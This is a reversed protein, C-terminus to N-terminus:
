PQKGTCGRSWRLAEVAVRVQAPSPCTPRKGRSVSTAANGWAMAASAHRVYLRPEHRAKELEDREHEGEQRAPRGRPRALHEFVVARVLARVVRAARIFAAGIAREDTRGTGAPMHERRREDHANRPRGHVEGPDREVVTLADGIIGDRFTDKVRRTEGCASSASEQVQAILARMGRASARATM